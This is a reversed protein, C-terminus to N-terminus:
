IMAMSSVPNNKSMSDFVVISRRPALVTDMFDVPFSFAWKVTTSAAFPSPVFSLGKTTKLCAM